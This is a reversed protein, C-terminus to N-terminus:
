CVKWLCFKKCKNTEKAIDFLKFFIFKLSMELYVWALDTLVYRPLTLIPSSPGIAPASFRLWPLDAACDSPAHSSGKVQAEM